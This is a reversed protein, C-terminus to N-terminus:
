DGHDLRACMVGIWLLGSIFVALPIGYVVLLYATIILTDM